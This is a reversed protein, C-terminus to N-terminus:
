HGTRIRVHKDITLCRTMIPYKGHNKLTYKQYAQTEQKYTNKNKRSNYLSTHSICLLQNLYISLTSKRLDSIEYGGLKGGMGVRLTNFGTILVDDAGLSSPNIGLAMPVVSMKGTPKLRRIGGCCGLGSTGYSCFFFVERWFCRLYNFFYKM